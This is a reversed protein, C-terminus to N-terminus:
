NVGKLLIYHAYLNVRFYKTHLCNCLIMSEMSSKLSGNYTKCLYKPIIENVSAFFLRNHDNRGYSDSFINRHSCMMLLSVPSGDPLVYRQNGDVQQRFAELFRDTLTQQIVVNRANVIPMSVKDKLDRFDLANLRADCM